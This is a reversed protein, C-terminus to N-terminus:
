GGCGHLEGYRLCEDPTFVRTARSNALDILYDIDLFFRRLIRGADPEDEDARLEQDKAGQYRSERRDSDRRIM